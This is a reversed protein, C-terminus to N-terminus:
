ASCLFIKKKKKNLVSGPVEESVLQREAMRDIEGKKVVMSAVTGITCTM